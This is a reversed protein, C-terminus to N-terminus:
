FPLDDDDGTDAADPPAPEPADFPIDPDADADKQQTDTLRLVKRIRAQTGWEESTEHEVRLVVERGQRSAEFLRDAFGEADLDEGAELKVALAKAVIDVRWFAKETFAVYDRLEAGRDAPPSTVQYVCKVMPNGSKSTAAEANMLRARYDGPELVSAPAASQPIKM